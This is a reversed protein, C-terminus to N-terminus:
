SSAGERPASLLAHRRLTCQADLGIGDPRRDLKCNEVRAVGGAATLAADVVQLLEVEHLGQVRLQMESMVLRPASLGKADFWAQLDPPLPQSIEAGVEVTYGVPRRALVAQAAAESWAVRDARRDFGAQRLRRVATERQERESALAALAEAEIRAAETAARETDQAFSARSARLVSLGLLALGLLLAAGFLMAARAMRARHASRWLLAPWGSM